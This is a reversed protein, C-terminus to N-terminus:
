ITGRTLADPEAGAFEPPSLKEAALRTLDAATVAKGRLSAADITRQWYEDPIRDREAWKRVTDAKAGVAAAMETPSDWFAIVDRFSSIM